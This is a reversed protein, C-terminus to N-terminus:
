HAKECVYTLWIGAGVTKLVTTNGEIKLIKNHMFNKNNKLNGYAFFAGSRKAQTIAWNWVKGFYRSAFSREHYSLHNKMHLCLSCVVMAIVSVFLLKNAKTEMLLKLQTRVYIFISVAHSIMGKRDKGFISECSASNLLKIRSPKHASFPKIKTTRRWFKQIARSVASKVSKRKTTPKNDSNVRILLHSIRLLLSFRFFNYCIPIYKSAKLKFDFNKAKAQLHIRWRRQETSMGLM